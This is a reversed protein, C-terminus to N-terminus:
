LGTFERLLHASMQKFFFDWCQVEDIKLFYISFLEASNTMNFPLFM